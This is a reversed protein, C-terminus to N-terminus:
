ASIWAAALSRQVPPRDSEVPDSHVELSHRSSSHLPFANRHVIFPQGDDVFYRSASCSSSLFSAIEDASFRAVPRSLGLPSFLPASETYGTQQSRPLPFSRRSSQNRHSRPVLTQKSSMVPPRRDKGGAFACGVRKGQICSPLCEAQSTSPSLGLGLGCVGSSLSSSARLRRTKSGAPARRTRRMVAYFDPRLSRRRRLPDSRMVSNVRSSSKRRSPLESPARTGGVDSSGCGGLTTEPTSCLITHSVGRDHASHSSTGHRLSSLSRPPSGESVQWRLFTLPIRAAKTSQLERNQDFSNGFYGLSYLTFKRRRHPFPRTVVQPAARSTSATEARQM